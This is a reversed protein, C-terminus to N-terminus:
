ARLATPTATKGRSAGTSSSSMTSNSYDSDVTAKHHHCDGILPTSAVDLSKSMVSTPHVIPAGIQARQGRKNVGVDTVQADVPTPSYPGVRPPAECPDVQGERGLCDASDPDCEDVTGTSADVISPWDTVRRESTSNASM